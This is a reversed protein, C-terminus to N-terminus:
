LRARTVFNKRLSGYRLGSRAGFLATDRIIKVGASVVRITKDKNFQPRILGGVIEVHFLIVGFCEDREMFLEM